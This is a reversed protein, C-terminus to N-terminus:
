QRCKLVYNIANELDKFTNILKGYNVNSLYCKEFNDIKYIDLKTCIWNNYKNQYIYYDKLNICFLYQHKYLNKLSFRYNTIKEKLLDLNLKNDEIYKDIKFQM